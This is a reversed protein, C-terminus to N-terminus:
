DVTVWGNVYNNNGIIERGSNVICFGVNYVGRAPNATASATYPRQWGDIMVILHNDGVFPVVPESEGRQHCISIAARATGSNTGLVATATAVLTQGDGVAVSRVPGNFQWTKGPFIEYSGEGSIDFVQPAATSRDGESQRFEVFGFTLFLLCLCLFLTTIKM